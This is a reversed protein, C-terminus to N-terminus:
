VHRASRPRALTETASATAEIRAISVLSIGLPPRILREGLQFLPVLRNYVQLQGEPPTKKKLVHGSFWWGVAAVLGCYFQSEIRAGGKQLLSRMTDKTYRRYHGIAADMTGYLWMHAPVVIILTGGRPLLGIMNGVALDDQPLHELVNLSIVSDVRCDILEKPPPCAVDFVCARVNGHGRFRNRVTEVSAADLDTAVVLERDLLLATLNGHGCGVEIIRQGLHDKVEDLLWRDFRNLLLRGRRVAELNARMDDSSHPAEPNRPPAGPVPVSRHSPHPPGPADTPFHSHTRKHNETM